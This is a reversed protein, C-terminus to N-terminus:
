QKFRFFLIRIELPQKTQVLSFVVSHMSFGIFHMYVCVSQVVRLVPGSQGCMGARTWYVRFLHLYCCCPPFLCEELWIVVGFGPSSLLRDIGERGSLWGVSVSIRFVSPCPVLQRGVVKVCVSHVACVM